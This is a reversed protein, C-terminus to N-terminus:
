LSNLSFISVKSGGAFDQIKIRAPTPFGLFGGWVKCPNLDGALGAVGDGVLGRQWRLGKGRYGGCHGRGWEGGHAARHKLLCRYRLTVWMCSYSPDDRSM